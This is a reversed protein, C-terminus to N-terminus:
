LLKKIGSSPDERSTIHHDRLFTEKRTSLMLQIAALRRVADAPNTFLQRRPHRWVFMQHRKSSPPVLGSTVQRRDIKCKPSSISSTVEMTTIFRTTAAPTLGARRENSMVVVLAV